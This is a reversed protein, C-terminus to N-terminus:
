IICLVAEAAVGGLHVESRRLARASPPEQRLRHIRPPAGLELGGRGCRRRRRRRELFFFASRGGGERPGRGAAPPLHLGAQGLAQRAPRAAGRHHRLSEAAALRHGHEGDPGRRPRVSGEPQLLGGGDHAHEAEGAATLNPNPNPKPRPSPLLPRDGVVLGAKAISLTQQEMAEHITARDQERMSAFEDICCVGGNALVLAGAELSWDSGDRVATCTLGAGTTGVGKHFSLFPFSLTSYHTHTLPSRGLSLLGLGVRVQPSSPAHRYTPLSGCSNARGAAPIAWL